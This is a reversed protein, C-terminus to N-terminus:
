AQDAVEFESREIFGKFLSDVPEEFVVFIGSYPIDFNLRKPTLHDAHHGCQCKVDHKSRDPVIEEYSGRGVV